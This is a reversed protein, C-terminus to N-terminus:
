GICAVMLRSYDGSLEGKVRSVLERKYFHRYAGKVQQLRERNWHFMVIRRVLMLDKTGMGKCAEEILDADHKAPDESGRLIYLLADQMHGSFESKIVSDLSRHYKSKYAQSIARMQGKSRHTFIQCVPIQDTGTKGETCRYIEQVDRDVEQPNPQTSEPPRDADLAMTFLRETKFSLDGKVDDLLSRKFMQHYRQKIANMDANSRLLLVDNLGSEKTGAGKMSEYLENCDNDLPGRIISELGHRFYGSTESHVDKMLDRRHRQQFAAKVGNIQLPDLGKLVNILREEDTGFGKMAARLDDAARSMDM